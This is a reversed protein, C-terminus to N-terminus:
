IMIPIKLKEIIFSFLRHLVTKGEEREIIQTFQIM